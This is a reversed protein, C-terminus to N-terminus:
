RAAAPPLRYFRLVVHPRKSLDTSGPSHFFVDTVTRVLTGYILTRGRLQGEFMSALRPSDFRTEFNDVASGNGLLGATTENFPPGPARILCPLWDNQTLWLTPQASAFKGQDADVFYLSLTASALRVGGGGVAGIGWHLAANYTPGSPLTAQTCYQTGFFRINNSGYDQAPIM